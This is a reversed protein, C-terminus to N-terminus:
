RKVFGEKKSTKKYVNDIGLERLAKYTEGSAYYDYGKTTLVYVKAYTGNKSMVQEIAAGKQKEDMQSYFMEKRKGNEDEVTYKKGDKMLIELESKNLQGYYKNLNEIERATLKLKEGNVTYSGTLMSRNVGLSIATKETETVNYPSIDIPSLKNIANTIFPAKYMVQNEGTYPDVYKPFAYALFPVTNVALKEIKGLIGANYKVKYKNTISSITKFFNPVFANLVKEPLCLFLDGVGDNYRFTNYLDTFVSDAFMVDLASAFIDVFNVDKDGKSADMISRTVSMGLFIGQTTFIDSIDVYVNGCKLKYKDDEEDLQVVGFAALLCGILTGISGIIGKGVNRIATYEALRSSVVTDGTLYKNARDQELKDITNELKAFNVISKVLGVPTYNLGEIFWNWSASAFPFFQKYMFYVPRPARRFIEAEFKTFINSRHMFDQSALIFAEAITNTVDSTLGGRLDTGDETLMKGLYSLMRRQVYKDDSIRKIIFNYIHDLAVIDTKNAYFVNTAIGSAITKALADAGVATPTLKDKKPNRPNYKSLGDMLEALFGNSILHTNLFDKVDDTVKTGIIKYQGQRDKFWKKTPFMKQLAKSALKGVHESTDLVGPVIQKDGVYIGGVIANSTWNRVWTGPGSLMMLREFQILKETFKKKRGSYKKMANTYMKQKVKTVRDINGTHIANTLETIDEEAFEIGTSKALSDVIIKEPNAIKMAASHAQLVQGAVSAKLTLHKRIADYQNESLSYWGLKNGKLLFALVWGETVQYLRYKEETINLESIQSNLYFDIIDNVEEQTLAELREANEDLFTKYSAQRHTDDAEAFEKVRTKVSKSFEFDLIRELAPPMPKDSKIELVSDSVHVEVIKEKVVIEKATTQRQKRQNELLERMLKRNKEAAKYMKENYYEGSRVQESLVKMKEWLEGLGKTDTYKYKGKSYSKYKELVGERFRIKQNSIEFLDANYKVFLKKQALTLRRNQTNLISKINNVISSGPREETVVEEVKQEVKLTDLTEIDIGTIESIITKILIKNLEKDSVTSLKQLTQKFSQISSDTSGFRNRIYKGAYLLAKERKESMGFDSVADLMSQYASKDELTDQLTLDEGISRDINTTKVEGATDLGAKSIFRAIKAIRNASYLSGDYYSMWLWRLQKENLYDVETNYKLMRREYAQRVKNDPKLSQLNKILSLSLKADDETVIDPNQLRITHYAAYFSSIADIYNQLEEPTKIADNQFFAKNIADFTKQDFDKIDTTRLYDMIDAVVLTGKHKGTIKDELVEPRTTGSTIRIFEKLEPAMQVKKYKGLFHILDTGEANKRSIYRKDLERDLAVEENTRAKKPASKKKKTPKKTPKQVDTQTYRVKPKTLSPFNRNVRNASKTRYYLSLLEDSNNASNSFVVIDSDEDPDYYDYEVDGLIFDIRKSYLTDMVYLLTENSEKTLPGSVRVAAFTGGGRQQISVQPISAFFTKYDKDGPDHISEIITSHMEEDIILALEGNPMIFGSFNLKNKISNEFEEIPVKETMHLLRAEYSANLPRAEYSANELTM